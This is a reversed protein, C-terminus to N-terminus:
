ELVTDVTPADPDQLPGPLLDCMEQESRQAQRQLTVPNVAAESFCGSSPSRVRIEGSLSNRENERSFLYELLITM